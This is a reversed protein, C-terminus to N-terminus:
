LIVLTIGINYRELDSDHRLEDCVRFAKITADNFISFEEGKIIEKIHGQQKQRELYKQAQIRIAGGKGSAGYGHIIKVVSFGLAKANRINYTIRKIAVDVTPNDQKINIEKLQGIIYLM